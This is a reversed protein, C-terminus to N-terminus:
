RSFLDPQKSIPAVVLDTQPNGMLAQAEAERESTELLEPQGFKAIADIVELVKFDRREELIRAVERDAPRPLDIEPPVHADAALFAQIVRFGEYFIQMFDADHLLPCVVLNKAEDHYVRDSRGQRTPVIGIRLGAATELHSPNIKVTTGLWRDSDSHGLFLDAKWLGRISFPLAPRTQPKRFAAALVNLYRRLKVPRGPTGQLLQSDDTLVANATDVLQQAGSKEVGFLISRLQTGPLRCIRAADEVRELVHADNRSVADHVAYEFCIGCDGDGPRHLRPLMMLKVNEYGGVERVVDAKIAYLVGKLMPRIVATLALVEDGVPHLQRQEQIRM